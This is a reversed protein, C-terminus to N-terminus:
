IVLLLLMLMAGRASITAVCSCVLGGADAMDINSEENLLKEKANKRMNCSPHIPMRVLHIHASVNKTVHMWGPKNALRLPQAEQENCIHSRM